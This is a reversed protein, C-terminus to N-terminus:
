LPRFEVTKFIRRATEVDRAERCLARMEAEMKGGTPSYFKVEAFYKYGRVPREWRWTQIRAKRGDITLSEKQYESQRAIYHEAYGEDWSSYTAHLSIRGDAFTSGWGCEMCTEENRLRMAQPLSFTFFKGARIERWGEPVPATRPQGQPSILPSLSVLAITLLWWM